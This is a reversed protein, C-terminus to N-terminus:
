RNTRIQPKGDKWIEFDYVAFALMRPDGNAPSGAPTDTYFHLFNEGPHLTVKWDRVFYPADPAIDGQLRHGNLEIEIRRPVLTALYFGIVVEAPQDEYLIIDVHGCGSAWCWTKGALHETEYFSEGYEVRLPSLRVPIQPILYINELELLANTDIKYKPFCSRREGSLRCIFEKGASPYVYAPKDNIHLTVPERRGGGHGFTGIVSVDQHAGYKFVVAQDSELLVPEFVGPENRGLLAFVLFQNKANKEQYYRLYYYDHPKDADTWGSKALSEVLSELHGRSHIVWVRKGTKVDVYRSWYGDESALIGRSDWLSPAYIVSGERIGAFEDSQLFLDFADWKLQALEQDRTIYHNYYDTLIGATVIFLSIIFACITGFIRMRRVKQNVFWICAGMLLMTGFFSFFSPVYALSGNVVWEQYKPTLAPLLVPLLMLLGGSGALLFFLSRTFRMEKQRLLIWTTYFVLIAKVLWDTRCQRMVDTIALGAQQFGDFAAGVSEFDKFFFYTPFTSVSYQWMVRIANGISFSIKSGAYDGPFFYRFTLYAGLYLGTFLALPTLCRGMALWRDKSRWRPSLHASADVNEPGVVTMGFGVALFFFLYPLFIEYTLCSLFFLAGGAWLRKSSNTRIGKVFCVMSLLLCCFGFQFIFPYATLLNHDWNNQLFCWSLMTIFFAFPVSGVFVYLTYMFVAYSLAVSGLRVTQYFVPGGKYPLVVLPAVILGSFRGTKKATYCFEDLIHHYGSEALLATQTDDRTTFGTQTHPFLTFVALLIFVLVYFRNKEDFFVM